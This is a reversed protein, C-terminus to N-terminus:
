ADSIFFIYSKLSITFLSNLERSLLEISSKGVPHNGWDLVTIITMVITIM